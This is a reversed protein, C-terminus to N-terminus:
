RSNQSGYGRISPLPAVKNSAKKRELPALLPQKSPSTTLRDHESRNGLGERSPAFPEDQGAPETANQQSGARAEEVRKMFGTFRGAYRVNMTESKTKVNSSKIARPFRSKEMTLSHDRGINVDAGEDQLLAFVDPKKSLYAANLLYKISHQQDHMNLVASKIAAGNELKDIRGLHFTVAECDKEEIVKILNCFEKKVARKFDKVEPKTKTLAYLHAADGGATLLTSLTDINGKRYATKIAKKSDFPSKTGGHSDIENQKELLYKLTEQSGNAAAAEIPTPYTTTGSKKKCDPSIGAEVLLRVADQDNNKAAKHLPTDAYSNFLQTIDRGKNKMATSIKKLAPMNGAITAIHIPLNSDRDKCLDANPFNELLFEITPDLFQPNDLDLMAAHLATTSNIEPLEKVLDSEHEHIQKLVDLDGRRAADVYTATNVNNRTRVESQDGTRRMIKALREKKTPEPVLAARREKTM